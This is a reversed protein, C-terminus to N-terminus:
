CIRRTRLPPPRPMRVLDGFDYLVTGSMVTDLDVVCLSNYMIDNLLVNSIKADNHAIHEPIIGHHLVNVLIHM